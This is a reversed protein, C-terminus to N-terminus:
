TPQARRAEAGALADTPLSPPLGTVGHHCSAPNQGTTKLPILSYSPLRAPLAPAPPAQARACRRCGARLLPRGESLLGSAGTRRLLGPRPARHSTALSESLLCCKVFLSDKNQLIHTGHSQCKFSHRM